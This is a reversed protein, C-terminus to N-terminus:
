KCSKAVSAAIDRQFRTAGQVNAPDVPADRSNHVDLRRTGTLRLSVAVLVQRQEAGMVFDLKHKGVPGVVIPGFPKQEVALEGLSTRNKERRDVTLEVSAGECVPDKSVSQRDPQM